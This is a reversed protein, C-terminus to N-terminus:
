FRCKGQQESFYEWWADKLDSVLSLGIGTGEHTRGTVNQVRHFRQFLNPLEEHPIGVGTDCISLEANNNKVSLSVTIGGTLTYKFANSLLNLVIKEWMTRDVYIPQVIHECNVNFYLGANEIASRFGGALDRTFTSIDTLQFQAKARGAEIRSFDLLNNVLRLLRMSNRHTTEIKDKEEDTLHSQAGNLLDELPGLM